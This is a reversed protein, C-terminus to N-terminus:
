RCPESRPRMPHNLVPILGRGLVCRVKEPGDIFDDDGELLNRSLSFDNAVFAFSDQSGSTLGVSAFEARTWKSRFAVSNAFDPDLLVAAM